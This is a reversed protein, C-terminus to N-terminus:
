TKSRVTLYERTREVSSNVTNPTSAQDAAFGVSKGWGQISASPYHTMEEGTDDGESQCQETLVDAVGAMAEPM